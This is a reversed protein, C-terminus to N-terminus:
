QRCAINKRIHRSEVYLPKQAPHENQRLPIMKGFRAHRSCLNYELQVLRSRDALNLCDLVM